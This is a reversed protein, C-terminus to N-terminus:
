EEYHGNGRLTQHLNMGTDGLDYNRNARLVRSRAAIWAADEHKQRPSAAEGPDDVALGPQASPFDGLNLM